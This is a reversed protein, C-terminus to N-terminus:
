PHVINSLIHYGPALKYILGEAKPREQMLHRIESPSILDYRIAHLSPDAYELLRGHRLDDLIAAPDLADFLRRTLFAEMAPRRRELWEDVSEGPIRPEPIHRIGYVCVDSNIAFALSILWAQIWEGDKPHDQDRYYAMSTEMDVTVTHGTNDIETFYLYFFSPIGQVLYVLGFPETGEILPAVEDMGNCLSMDDGVMEYGGEYPDDSEEIRAFGYLRSPWQTCLNQEVRQVTEAVTRYSRSFNTFTPEGM